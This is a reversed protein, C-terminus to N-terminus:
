LRYLVINTKAKNLMTEYDPWFGGALGCGIKYPMAVRDLGLADLAELCERFWRQRNHTTDTYTKPYYRNYAGVKSPTWQAFM